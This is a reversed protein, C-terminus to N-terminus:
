AKRKRSSIVGLTKLEEPLWNFSQECQGYTCLYQESIYEACREISVAAAQKFEPTASLQQIRNLANSHHGNWRALVHPVPKDMVVCFATITAICFQQQWDNKAVACVHYNSKKM